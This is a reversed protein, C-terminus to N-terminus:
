GMDQASRIPGRHGKRGVAPVRYNIVRYETPCLINININFQELETCTCTGICTGGIIIVRYLYGQIMMYETNQIRYETRQVVRYATSSQVRYTSSSIRM